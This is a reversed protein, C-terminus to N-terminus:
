KAPLPPSFLFFFSIVVFIPLEGDIHHPHFLSSFLSSFNLSFALPSVSSFLFLSPEAYISTFSSTFFSSPSSSPTQMYIIHLSSFYFIKGNSLSLFFYNFYTLQSCYAYMYTCACYCWHMKSTSHRSWHQFFKLCILCIKGQQLLYHYWYQHELICCVMFM